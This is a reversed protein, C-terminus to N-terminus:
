PSLSAAELAHTLCALAEAQYKRLKERSERLLIEVCQERGRDEAMITAKAAVCLAGYADLLAEKGRFYRAELSKRLAPGVALYLPGASEGLARSAAAIGCASRVRAPYAQAELGQTMLPALEDLYLKLAGETSGTNDQV